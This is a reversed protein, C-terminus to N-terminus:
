GGLQELGNTVNVLVWAGKKRSFGLHRLLRSMTSESVRVGM